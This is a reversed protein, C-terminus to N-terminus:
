FEIEVIHYGWAECLPIDMAVALADSETEFELPAEEDEGTIVVLRKSRPNRTALIFAV